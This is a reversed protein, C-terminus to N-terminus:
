TDSFGNIQGKQQLESFSSLSIREAGDKLKLELTGNTNIHSVSYNKGDIWVNKGVLEKAHEMFYANKAPNNPNTKM